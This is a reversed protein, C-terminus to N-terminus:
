AHPMLKGRVLRIERCFGPRIWGGPWLTADLTQHSGVSVLRDLKMFCQLSATSAHFGGIEEPNLLGTLAELSGVSFEPRPTSNAMVPPYAALPQM